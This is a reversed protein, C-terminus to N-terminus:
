SHLTLHTMTAGARFEGKFVMVILDRRGATPSVSLQMLEDVRALLEFIFESAQFNFLCAVWALDPSLPLYGWTPVM